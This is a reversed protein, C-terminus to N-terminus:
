GHAACCRATLAASDILILAFAHSSNIRVPDRLTGLM